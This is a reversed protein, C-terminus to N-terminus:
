RRWNEFAILKFRFDIQYNSRPNLKYAVKTGDRSHIELSPSNNFNGHFRNSGEFNFSIEEARGSANLDKKIM